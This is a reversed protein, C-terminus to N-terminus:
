VVFNSMIQQRTNINSCTEAPIYNINLVTSRFGTILASVIKQGKALKRSQLKFDKLQMVM